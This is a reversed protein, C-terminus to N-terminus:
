IVGATPTRRVIGKGHTQEQGSLEVLAPTAPTENERHAWCLGPVQSHIFSHPWFGDAEWLLMVLSVWKPGAGELDVPWAWGRPPPQWPQWRNLLKWSDRSLLILPLLHCFPLFRSCTPHPHLTGVWAQILSACSFSVSPGAMPPSLIAPHPSLTEAVEKAGLIFKITNEKTCSGGRQGWWWCGARPGAGLPCEPFTHQNVRHM